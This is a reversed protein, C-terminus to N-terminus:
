TAVPGFQNSLECHGGNVVVGVGLLMEGTPQELLGARCATAATHLNIWILNLTFKSRPCSCQDLLINNMVDDLSGAQRPGLSLGGYIGDKFAELLGEGRAVANLQASKADEADTRAFGTDSAIWAGSGLDADRRSLGDSELRALFEV